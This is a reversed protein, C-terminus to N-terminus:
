WRPPLVAPPAPRSTSRLGWLALKLADVYDDHEKRPKELGRDAADPDWEYDAMQRLLIAGEGALPVRLQTKELVANVGGIMAMNFKGFAVAQARLRQRALIPILEMNARSDNADMFAHAQWNTAARAIREYLQQAPMRSHGEVHVVYYIPIDGVHVLVVVVLVTPNVNGWDVGLAAADIWLSPDAEVLSWLGTPDDQLTPLTAAQVDDYDFVTGARAGFEGKIHIKVENKDHDLIWQAIADPTMWPCDYATWHRGVYGREEREEWLERFRHHLKDPTSMVRYLPSTAGPLLPAGVLQGEVLLMIDEDTACAEDLIVMHPHRSKAQRESAARIKIWGGNRLKTEEMMPEDVVPGIPDLMGPAECFAKWYDYLTKAQDLSGANVTVTFVPETWAVDAISIAACFTKSCGRGTKGILNSVTVDCFDRMFVKQPPAFSLVAQHAAKKMVLPGLIPPLGRGGIAFAWPRKRYLEAAATRTEYRELLSVWDSSSSTDNSM